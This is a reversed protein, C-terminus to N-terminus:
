PPATNCSQFNSGNIADVGGGAPNQSSVFTAAQVGTAPSPALGTIGFDNTGQVSGQKRIGIGGAGNSGASTNGSITVCVGDDASAANGADIRIGERATGGANVPAGVANSAIKMDAFGSTGRGVLLIGNGDTGSITNNTVTLTLDPTWANGAGAVGNGGAIGNGGGLNPTHTAVIANNNVTGVMDAYGNNGVLIVTGLDSSGLPTAVPATCGGTNRGNCQILFNTKARSAPNGGTNAVTIAQTATPKVTVSNNTISILKTPDGPVGAVAGPGSANSGSISFQIGTGGTNSVNNQNVTANEVKFVTSANNTGVFNIGSGQTTGTITNNSVVANTVDGNDSQIDLGSYFSNTITNGTVTLTGAINNGLGSNTGNFAIASDFSANGASDIKGNTFSFNTVLTGNIGSDTTTQILMRDIAVNQTNNLSVGIAANQITGGTCTAASSCTGGNGSVTLGGSAGTSNLVIGNAAGTSSVSRFTLGSAGINTNTVNLATGTTTVATNGSGTVNVTGGGTATFAPSSGTSLTLGGTFTITAGTNSTLSVGTDNDTIAGNFTVTGGTKNAVSVSHANGSAITGNYSLSGTGGTVDFTNATAGSLAGNGLTANGGIAALKIGNAGGSSSISTFSGSLTGTALDLAPGSGSVVVDSTTLTGFGTGSIAKTTASGTVLNVGRLTNTTGVGNLNVANTAASAISITPAPLNLSPRAALTGQAPLAIAFLADFTTGTVGQGILWGNSNLTVSTSYTGADGIFLRTNTAAAINALATALLCENTLTCNGAGTAAQKVFFISPGAVTFSVTAPPSNVGPPPSGSDTVHYTFAVTTGASLPPPTFVFSGDGNITLLCGPCLSDPTTSITVSTGDPDTGGLKGAPYTIPIGAQAPLNTYGFATPPNNIATITITSTVPVSAAQGDDGIWTVTRSAPNPNTSPNSYRVSRLATQYNALSASGSLTLLCNGANYSGSIGNQNTFSLVDEPNTCNGTIQATAGVLNISDSDTVTITNDIVTAPNGETFNITAGATLVPPQPNGSDTCGILPSNVVAILNGRCKGSAGAVFEIGKDANTIRNTDALGGVTASQFRIGVAFGTGQKTTDIVDNDILRPGAGTALIGIADANAGLTTTGGTRAIQSDRVENGTGDVQIGVLTNQDARISDVVNGQSAGSTEFYIGKLFGRVTGNKITVNVRDLAHIGVATTGAGGLGGLTFGNLDIVVNNTQVDIANGSAAAMNVDATLCYVDQVTIVAPLVSIPTCDVTEARASGAIALLALLAAGLKAASM